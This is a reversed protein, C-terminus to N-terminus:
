SNIFALVKERTQDYNRKLLDQGWLVLVRWGQGRLFELRKRDKEEDRHWYGGFYEILLHKAKYVFDPNCNGVWFKGDGVYRFRGAGHGIQKLLALVRLESKNPHCAGLKGESRQKKAQDSRRKREEPSRCAALLNKRKEPDEWAQQQALSNRKRAEKSGVAKKHRARFAPDKWQKRKGNHFKESKRLGESIAVSVRKKYKPNNWREKTAEGIAEKFNKKDTVCRMAKHIRRQYRRSKKAAAQKKRYEPNEWRKKAAESQGKTM